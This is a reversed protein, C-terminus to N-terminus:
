RPRGSWVSQADSPKGFLKTRLQITKMWGAFDYTQRLLCGPLLSENLVVSRTIDYVAVDKCMLLESDGHPQTKIVADPTSRQPEDSTAGLLREIESEPIRRQNGPTRITKIKGANDWNRLTQTTVGLIEAAKSLTFHKEM